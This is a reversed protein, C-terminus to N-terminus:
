CQRGARLKGADLIWARGRWRDKDGIERLMLDRYTTAEAEQPWIRSTGFTKFSAVAYKEIEKSEILRNLEPDLDYDGHEIAWRASEMNLAKSSTGPVVVYGEKVEKLTNIFHIEYERRVSSPLADVFAENYPTKYTYFEKIGLGRLTEGLRAAAM